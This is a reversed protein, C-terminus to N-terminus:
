TPDKPPGPNEAIEVLEAPSAGRTKTQGRRITRVIGFLFGLGLLGAVVATGINEWDARVRVVFSTPETIAAGGPALLTVAVRVDGSGVAHFPIRAQLESRAPVVVTEPADVVLVRSAPELLIQVTVDQDLANSLGIPLTGSQSILNLGSGAVVTVGSARATLDSVVGQVVDARGSADARWAVALPALVSADAGATLTTPTAVVAAFTTLDARATRMANIATPSLEVDSRSREPLDTREVLPDATGILASLPTLAVWPAYTLAALQARAVLVDPSWGRRPAILVHRPDNPRERAIIATEALVRQAATAPTTPNAPSEAPGSPNTFLDTLPPDAILASVDQTPTPVTARGTPTYNLDGAALGDGGVMVARAGNQAALAVTQLDPVDDAPWALDTRPPTDLVPLPAAASAATAAAALDAADAHALAALDPDLAPLTFVDRGAAARNLGAALAVAQTATTSGTSSKLDTATEPPLAATSLSSLLAPDVAWAVEPRDRTVDLLDALRDLTKAPPIAANSAAAGDVGAGTLPVAVSVRVSTEPEAPLWLVFTRALGVRSGGDTAEVSIGRPGWAASARSLGLDGAPVLFEVDAQAGPALPADLAVTAVPNGATDTPGFATWEALASRTSILFRRVRLVARPEAIETDSRNHLVAHVLLQGDPRLVQPTVATVSVEVPLERSASDSPSPTAAHVDAQAPLTGVAAGTFLIGAALAGALLRGAVFRGHLLRGRLSRPRPRTTRRSPASM